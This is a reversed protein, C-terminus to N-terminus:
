TGDDIAESAMEMERDFSDRWSRSRERAKAAVDEEVFGVLSRLPAAPAAEIEDAPWWVVANAGVNKREVRGQDHLQGLRRRVTEDSVPRVETLDGITAIPDSYEKLAELVDDVTVKPPRRGGDGKESTDNM